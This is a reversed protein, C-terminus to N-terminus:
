SNFFFLKIYKVFDSIVSIKSFIKFNNRKSFTKPGHVSVPDQVLIWCITRILILRQPPPRQNEGRCIWYIIRLTATTIQRVPVRWLRAAAVAEPPLSLTKLPHRRKACAVRPKRPHQPPPNSNTLHLPTASPDDQAPPTAPGCCKIPAWGSEQLSYHYM